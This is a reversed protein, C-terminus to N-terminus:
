HAGANSDYVRALDRDIDANAIGIPAGTDISGFCQEFQKRAATPDVPSNSTGCAREVISAALEAPTRGTSVAASALAQFTTDSLEIPLNASM